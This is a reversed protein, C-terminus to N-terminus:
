YDFTTQRWGPIDIRRDLHLFKQPGNWGISWGSDWAARFLEGRYQADATVVDVALCGVQGREGPDRDCIHFSDKKGGVRENHSTSRCASNVYMPGVRWRLEQLKNMFEATVVIMGTGRCAIEKPSFNPWRTEWDKLADETMHAFHSSRIIEAM